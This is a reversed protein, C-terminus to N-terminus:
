ARIRHSFGAVEELVRDIGEDDLQDAALDLAREMLDLLGHEVIRRHESPARLSLAHQLSELSLQGRIDLAMGGLNDVFDTEDEDVLLQLKPLARVGAGDLASQVAQLVENCVQLKEVVQAPALGPNMFRLGDHGSELNATPGLDVVDLHESCVTFEGQGGSRDRDHDVFASMADLVERSSSPRESPPAPVPEFVVEQRPSPPEPQRPSPPEPQRPSPPEPQRPSPPERVTQLQRAQSLLTGTDHHVQLNSVFLQTMPEFWAPGPLGLFVALNEKLLEERLDSLEVASVESALLDMGQEGM